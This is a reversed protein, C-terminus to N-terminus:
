PDGSRLITCCAAGVYGPGVYDHSYIFEILYYHIYSTMLRPFSNFFIEGKQATKVTKFIFRSKLEFKIKIRAFRIPKGVIGNDLYDWKFILMKEFDPAYRRTRAVLQKGM